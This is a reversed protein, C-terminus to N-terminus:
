SNIKRMKLVTFVCSILFISSTFLFKWFAVQPYKKLTLFSPILSVIFIVIVGYLLKYENKYPFVLSTLLLYLFSFLLLVGLLQYFISGFGFYVFPSLLQPLSSITEGFYNIIICYSFLILLKYKHM